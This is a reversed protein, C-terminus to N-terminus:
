IAAARTFLLIDEARMMLMLRLSIIVAVSHASVEKLDKQM